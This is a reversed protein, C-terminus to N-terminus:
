HYTEGRGGGGLFYSRRLGWGSKEGRSNRLYSSEEGLPRLPLPRERKELLVKKKEELYFYPLRREGRVITWVARVTEVREERARSKKHPHRNRLGEKGTSPASRITKKKRKQVGGKGRELFVGGLSHNIIFKSLHYLAEGRRRRYSKQDRKGEGKIFFPSFSDKM